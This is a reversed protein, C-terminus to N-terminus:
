TTSLTSTPTGPWTWAAPSANVLKDVKATLADIKSEVAAMRSLMAANNSELANLRTLMDQANARGSVCGVFIMAMFLASLLFVKKM